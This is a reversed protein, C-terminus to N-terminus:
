EKIYVTTLTGHIVESTYVIKGKKYEGLTIADSVSSEKFRFNIMDDSDELSWIAESNYGDINLIMSHDENLTFKITKQSNIAHEIKALDSPSAKVSDINPSVSETIWNGPLKDEVSGCSAMIFGTIIIIILLSSQKNLKM